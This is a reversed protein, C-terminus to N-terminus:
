VVTKNGCYAGTVGGLMEVIEKFLLREDVDAKWCKLM